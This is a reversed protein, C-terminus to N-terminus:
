GVETKFCISEPGSELRVARALTMLLAKRAGIFKKVGNSGPIETAACYVSVGVTASNQTRFFSMARLGALAEPGSPTGAQSKFSFVSKNAGTTVSIRLQEYKSARRGWDQFSALTAEIGLCVGRNIVNVFM